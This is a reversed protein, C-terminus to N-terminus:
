YHTEHKMNPKPLVESDFYSDCEENARVVEEDVVPEQIAASIGAMEERQKTIYKGLREKRVLNKAWAPDVADSSKMVYNGYCNDQHLNKEDETM